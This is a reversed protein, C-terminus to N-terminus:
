ARSETQCVRAELKARDFEALRNTKALVQDLCSDHKELFEGANMDLIERPIIKILRRENEELKNISETRKSRSPPSVRRNQEQHRGAKGAPVQHLRPRVQQEYLM